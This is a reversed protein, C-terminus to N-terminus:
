AYIHPSTKEHTNDAKQKSQRDGLALCSAASDPSTTASQCLRASMLCSSSPTRPTAFCGRLTPDIHAQPHVAESSSPSPCPPASSLRESRIGMRTPSSSSPACRPRHRAFWFPAGEHGMGHPVRAEGDAAPVVERRRRGGRTRPSAPRSSATGLLPFSARLPRPSLPPPLPSSAPMFFWRQTKLIRAGKATIARNLCISHHPM